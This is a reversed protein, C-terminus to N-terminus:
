FCREDLIFVHCSRVTYCELRTDTDSPYGDIVLRKLVIVHLQEHAIGVYTGRLGRGHWRLVVMLLLLMLLLLVLVLM